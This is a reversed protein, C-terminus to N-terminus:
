VQDLSIRFVYFIFFMSDFFLNELIILQSDFKVINVRLLIRFSRLEKEAFMIFVHIVIFNEVVPHVREFGIFVFLKVDLGFGHTPEQFQLGIFNVM